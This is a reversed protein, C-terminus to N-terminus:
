AKAQKTLAAKIATISINHEKALKLINTALSTATVKVTAKGKTTATAKAKAKSAAKSKRRPNLTKYDESKRLEKVISNPKSLGLLPKSEAITELLKANAAISMADAHVRHDTTQLELPFTTKKAVAAKAIAKYFDKQQEFQSKIAILFTGNSIYRQRNARAGEHSNTTTNSIATYNDGIHDFASSLTYTQKGVHILNDVSVQTATTKIASKAMTNRRLLIPLGQQGVLSGLSAM